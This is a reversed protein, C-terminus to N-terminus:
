GLARREKVKVELVAQVKKGCSGKDGCYRVSVLQTVQEKEPQTTNSSKGVAKQLVITTEMTLLEGEERRAACVSCPYKIAPFVM